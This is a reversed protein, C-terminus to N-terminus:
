TSGKAAQSAEIVGYTYPLRLAGPWPTVTAGGDFLALYGASDRVHRGRDIVYLQRELIGQGPRRLPELAVLRGGETLLASALLVAARADDDPLHHLVGAFLVLDFPAPREALLEALALQRFVGRDDHRRRASELYPAHPDLGLYAVGPPLFALVDAPGCGVDLVRAGPALRLTEAVFRAWLARSGVARQVASYFRPDGMAAALRGRLAWLPPIREIM